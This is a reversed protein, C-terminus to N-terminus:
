AKSRGHALLASLLEDAERQAEPDGDDTAEKLLDAARRRADEIGPHEEDRRQQELAAIRQAMAKM